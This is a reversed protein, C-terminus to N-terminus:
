DPSHRTEDVQVEEEAGAQLHVQRHHLGCPRGDQRFSEDSVLRTTYREDSIVSNVISSGDLIGYTRIVMLNIIIYVFLCVVVVLCISGFAIFFICFLVARILCSKFSCCSSM